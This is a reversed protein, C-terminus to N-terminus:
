ISEKHGESHFLEMRLTSASVLINCGQSRSLFLQQGDGSPWAEFSLSTNNLRVTHRTSNQRSDFNPPQLFLLPADIASAELGFGAMSLLMVLLLLLPKMM